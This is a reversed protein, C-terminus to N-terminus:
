TNYAFVCRTAILFNEWENQEVKKVLMNQLTQNFHKDLDNAQM